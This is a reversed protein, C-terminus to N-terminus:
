IHIATKELYKELVQELKKFDCCRRTLKRSAKGSTVMNYTKQSNKIILDSHTRCWKLQNGLLIKRKREERTDKPSLKLNIPSILSPHVPIMNNFNIVSIIDETDGVIGMIKVYDFNKPMTKHKPKPTTMPACYQKGNIMLLIGIFPRKEKGIQPSVSFVNDDANALDRIYKMSIKFFQLQKKM